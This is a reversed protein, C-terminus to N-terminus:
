EHYPETHNDPYVFFHCGDCLKPEDDIGRTFV